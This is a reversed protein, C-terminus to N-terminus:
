FILFNVCFLNKSPVLLDPLSSSEINKPDYVFNKAGYAYHSERKAHMETM